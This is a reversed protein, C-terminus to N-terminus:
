SEDSVKRKELEFVACDMASGKGTITDHNHGCSWETNNANDLDLLVGRWRQDFTNNQGVSKVSAILKM